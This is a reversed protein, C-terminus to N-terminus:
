DHRCWAVPPHKLCELVHCLGAIQRQINAFIAVEVAAHALEGRVCLPALGQAHLIERALLALTVVHEHLAICRCAPLPVEIRVIAFGTTGFPGPRQGLSRHERGIRDRAVHDRQYLIAKCLM